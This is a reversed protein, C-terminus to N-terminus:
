FFRRGRLMLKHLVKRDKPNKFSVAEYMKFLRVVNRYDEPSKARNWLTIVSATSHLAKGFRAKKEVRLNELEDDALASEEDDEKEEQLYSLKIKTEEIQEEISKKKSPKNDFRKKRNNSARTAPDVDDNESFEEMEKDISSHGLSKLLDIVIRRANDDNALRAFLGECFFAPKVTDTYCKIFKTRSKCFPQFMKRTTKNIYDQNKDPNEKTEKEESYRKKFETHLILREYELYITPHFFCSFWREWYKKQKKKDQKVTNKYNAVNTIFSTNTENTTGRFFGGKKTWSVKVVPMNISIKSPTTIDFSDGTKFKSDFFFKAVIDKFDDLNLGNEDYGCERRVKWVGRASIQEATEKM